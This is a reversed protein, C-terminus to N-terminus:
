KRHPPLLIRRQMKNIEVLAISSRFSNFDSIPFIYFVKSSQIYAIIFDVDELTYKKRKIERSNTLTKRTDIVYNKRKSDYWATKVQIKVLKGNILLCFDFPLRDGIPKLVIWEKEMSKLTAAIESIDGRQKKDM